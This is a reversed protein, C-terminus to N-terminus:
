TTVWTLIDGQFLAWVAKGCREFALPLNWNERNRNGVLNSASRIELFPLRYHIAIHAAGAGEMSEMCPAFIHHYNSATRDTATITSVTLFPGSLVRVEAEPFARRIIEEAGAALRDDWVYRNRIEGHDNRTVSFPLPAPPSGAVPAEMGLHADIEETAIGIDGVGLGSAEFAGACGIQLVLAPREDEIAATLAQVANVQGPGTTLLRVPVGCLNGSVVERGGISFTRAAELRDRLYAAEERVAAAILIHPTIMASGIVDHCNMGGAKYYLAHQSAIHGDPIGAVFLSNL